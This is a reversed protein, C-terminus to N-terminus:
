FLIQFPTKLLAKRIAAGFYYGNIRLLNDDENIVKVGFCKSLHYRFDYAATFDGFNVLTYTTNASNVPYCKFDFEIIWGEPDSSNIFTKAEELSDKEIIGGCKAGIGFTFLPM